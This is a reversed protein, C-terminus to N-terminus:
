RSATAQMRVCPHSAQMSDLAPVFLRRGHLLVSWRPVARDVVVAPALCFITAEVWMESTEIRRMQM